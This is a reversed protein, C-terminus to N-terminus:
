GEEPEIFLEPSSARCASWVISFSAGPNATRYANLAQQRKAIIQAQPPNGVTTAPTSADRAMIRTGKGPAARFNGFAAEIADPAALYDKRFKDLNSISGKNAAIFADCRRAVAEAVAKETEVEAAHASDILVQVAAVAEEETATESLGLLALLQNMTTDGKTTQTEAAMRAAAFTSLTEFQPTNTMAISTIAVPRYRNGKIHELEMVPSRSILVKNDWIKQGDPTFEWLTWIGDAGDRIDTVWAMADSTHDAMLSFHERDVLLGRFNPDAARTKFAAMCKDIAVQDVVIVGEVSKGNVIIQKDPYEGIEPLTQFWSGTGTTSGKPKSGLLFGNSLLRKM